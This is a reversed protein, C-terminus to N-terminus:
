LTDPWENDNLPQPQSTDIRMQDGCICCMQGIPQEEVSVGDITAGFYEVKTAADEWSLAPITGGYENEGMRYRFLYLKVGDVSVDDTLIKNKTEM